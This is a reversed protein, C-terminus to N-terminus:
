VWENGKLTKKRKIAGYLNDILSTITKDSEIKDIIKM